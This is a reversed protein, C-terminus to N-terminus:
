KQDDTDVPMAMAAVLEDRREGAKEFARTMLWSKKNNVIDGGIAKAAAVTNLTAAALVANNHEAIVLITM